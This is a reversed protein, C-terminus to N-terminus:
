QQSAASGVDSGLGRPALAALSCERRCLPLWNTHAHGEGAAAQTFSLPHTGLSTVILLLGQPAQRHVLLEQPEQCHSCHAVATPSSLSFPWGAGAGATAGSQVQQPAQAGWQGLFLGM